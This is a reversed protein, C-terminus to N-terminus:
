KRKNLKNEYLAISAKSFLDQYTKTSGKLTSIGATCRVKLNEAVDSYDVEVIRNLLKSAFKSAELIGLDLVITFEDGGQRELISTFKEEQLAAVIETSTRDLVIDGVDYGFDDNIKKFLDLDLEIVSLKSKNVKAQEFMKEAEEIFLGRGFKGSYLERESMGILEKYNITNHQNIKNIVTTIKHSRKAANMRDKNAQSQKMHLFSIFSDNSYEDQIIDKVESLSFGLDKLFLINRLDQGQEENYYRYGNQEDIKFPKILGLREYHHLTKVTVNNEKAFQGIAKM